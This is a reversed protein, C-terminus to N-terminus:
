SIEKTGKKKKMGEFPLTVYFKTGKKEESEFWTKGGSHDVISKVIYLGLGTGETDKEKVNDARFLKTFIKDQQHKPIGMGNDLISILIEKKKRKQSISIGVTGNKKTYKVANSLINQIVMRILKKDLMMEPITEDYKQTFKIKKAEIQPKMENTVSKAINIIRTKEPDVAFTGLELRSVNLLANVLEVMRQSGKYVEMQYERQGKNLEGVDGDLLMESYWNIASLPTRLQHSALSVFETKALDIEKEKSIDHEIGVYFIINRKSDFIPSISALATYQKGDKRRNKIEGYFVKKRIKITNWLKKYYEVPMLGGWLDKAGAKKGIIEKSHFGTIHEAAKNVYVITGDPDTIVIHDSAGDVALQFKHLDREVQRQKTVESVMILDAIIKGENSRIVASSVQGIHMNGKKDLFYLDYPKIGKGHMRQVFKKMMEIKSGRTLFPIKRVNSGIIEKPKYGLWDYLRNNVDIIIGSKDIIITAVPSLEFITRYM